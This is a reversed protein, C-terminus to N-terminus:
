QTLYLGPNFLAYNIISLDTNLKVQNECYLIVYNWFQISGPVLNQSCLKENYSKGICPTHVPDGELLDPKERFFTSSLLGLLHWDDLLLKWLWSWILVSFSPVLPIQKPIWVWVLVMSAFYGMRGRLTTTHLHSWQRGRKYLYDGNFIERTLSLPIMFRVIWIWLLFFYRWRTWM